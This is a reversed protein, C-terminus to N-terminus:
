AAVKLEVPHLATLARGLLNATDVDGAEAAALAAKELANVQATVLKESDYAKAAAQKAEIADFWNVGMADATRYQGGKKRKSFTGKGTNWSVPAFSQFYKRLQTAATPNVALVLKAMLGTDGHEGAHVLAGIAAGQIKEKLSGDSKAIARIATLTQAKDLVNM